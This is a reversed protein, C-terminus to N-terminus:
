RRPRPAAAPPAAIASQGPRNQGSRATSSDRHRRISSKYLRRAWQRLLESRAADQTGVAVVIRWGHRSEPEVLAVQYASRLAAVTEGALQSGTPVIFRIEITNPDPRACGGPVGLQSQVPGAPPGRYEVPPIAEVERVSM